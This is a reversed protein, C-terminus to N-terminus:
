KVRTQHGWIEKDLDFKDGWFAMIKVKKVFNPRIQLFFSFGQRSMGLCTTYWNTAM